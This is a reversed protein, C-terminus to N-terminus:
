ENRWRRPISYVLSGARGLFYLYSVLINNFLAGWGQWGFKYYVFLGLFIFNTFLLSFSVFIKGSFFSFIIAVHLAIFLVAGMAIKSQLFANLSRFDSEGHWRERSVFGSITDPYGLHKAKLESNAQIRVGNKRARCCIDYDEGSRLLEDFGGIGNFIERPIIMHGSGLHTDRNDNEISKYWTFFPQSIYDPVTCHSGTILKTDFDIKINDFADCWSLDIEVDADIFALIEGKADRAGDNRVGSVTKASSRIVKSGYSLAIEKSDDTSMNDVTIIEYSYFKNSMSNNIALIVDGITNGSNYCPIIFSLRVDNSLNSM